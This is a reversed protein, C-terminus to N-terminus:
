IFIRLTFVLILRERRLWFSWCFIFGFEHNSFGLSFVHFHKTISVPFLCVNEVADVIGLLVLHIVGRNGIRM